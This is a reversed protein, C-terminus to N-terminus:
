ELGRVERTLEEFSDGDLWALLLDVVAGYSKVGEEVKNAKLYADNIQDSIRAVPTEFKKWYASELALDRQVAASLESQYIAYWRDPDEEWLRGGMSKVASILGSYRWVPGPHYFCSLLGAFDCDGERAFGRAHSLEHAATAPHMFAPQDINISPEALLPMYIGIIRTYSWYRSLLVGKPKMRARNQFLPYALGLRDWGEQASAQIEKMSLGLLVGTEDEPLGERVASAERALRRVASDLEELSRDRVSLGMDGALSPRAYNLGHFVLFLSLALFGTGLVLLSTKLFRRLRKERYRFLRYLGIILLFILGLSGAVALIETLSFPLLRPIFGWVSALRPFIRDTYIRSLDPQRFLLVRFILLLLSFFGTISAFLAAGLLSPTKKGPTMKM